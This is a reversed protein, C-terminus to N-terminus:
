SQKMCIRKAQEMAGLTHLRAQEGDSRSALLRQMHALYGNFGAHSLPVVRASLHLLQIAFSTYEADVRAMTHDYLCPCVKESTLRGKTMRKLHSTSQACAELYTQREEAQSVACCALLFSVTLLSKFHMQKTGAHVTAVACSIRNIQYIESLQFSLVAALMPYVCHRICWRRGFQACITFREVDGRLCSACFSGANM